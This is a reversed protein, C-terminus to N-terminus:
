LRRAKDQPLFMGDIQETIQFVPVLGTTIVPASIPDLGEKGVLFAVAKVNMFAM